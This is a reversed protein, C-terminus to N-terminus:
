AYAGAVEAGHVHQPLFRDLRLLILEPIEIPAVHSGGPVVLLEAGPILQQMRLSLWMPTFTDREGTIVLTPARVDVLLDEVSHAQAAHLVQIFIDPDMGALHAFYPK